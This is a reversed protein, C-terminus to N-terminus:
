KKLLANLDDQTKKAIQQPSEKGLLLPEYVDNSLVNWFNQQATPNPLMRLMRAHDMSTLIPQIRDKPTHGGPADPVDMAELNAAYQKIPPVVKWHDIGDLLAVFAKFVTDKNVKTHANIAMDDIGLDTVQVAGKPLPAVKAMFGKAAYNGDAAGGAFMAVKGQRFLDEIDVNALEAQSPVLKQAVLTHLMTLAKVTQPSDFTSKTMDQNWFHGGYSWVFDYVPPWGNSLLFGYTGTKQKIVQCDHLFDQWTWGDKPEPLGAQKFLKPNYYMVTPQGIWPLAYYDGNYKDNKLTNPYYNDLNAVVYKDKYKNLYPQLDLIAGSQAYTSAEGDPLYFIDPASGAAIETKLKQDYNAPTNIERIQFENKYKQNIKNIIKHLQADEEAGGWTGFTITVPGSSGSKGSSSSANANGGSGCATTSFLLAGAMVVSVTWRSVTSRM